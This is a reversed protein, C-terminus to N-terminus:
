KYKITGGGARGTHKLDHQYMPWASNVLPSSGQIAYLYGDYSGIYITGDPSISPSAEVYDGTLYLWKLKGNPYIAYIYKDNSGIYIIGDLGIAPSSSIIGTTPYLWKLEGNATLAYVNKDFSGFYISGDIDIAPPSVIDGGVNYHWKESGDPLLAYLSSDTGFYLTGDFGISPSCEIYDKAQYSWKITSDPNFAYLYHGTTIYITGDSSITPSSIVSQDLLRCWQLTSDPNLAYFYDDNAGFYITGDASLAPSNTISNCIPDIQYRWKLTGDPNISYLSGVGWHETSVIYITGHADIAPANYECYETPYTWKHSGDPNIAYLGNGGAYITGDAGIAPSSCCYEGLYFRWKFLPADTILIACRSSWDSIEGKVDRAQAKIYYSDPSSWAHSMLISDGSKSWSSWDSTDGDGWNFRISVNNGDSDKALSSFTYSSDVFGNLPGIPMTPVNPPKNIKNCAFVIIGLLITIILIQILDDKMYRERLTMYIKVESLVITLYIM